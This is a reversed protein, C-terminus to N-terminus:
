YQSKACYYDKNLRVSRRQAQSVSTAKTRQKGKKTNRIASCEKM